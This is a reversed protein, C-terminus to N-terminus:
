KRLAAEIDRASPFVAINGIGAVAVTSQQLLAKGVNAVDAESVANIREVIEAASLAKDAHLVQRAIDETANTRNELTFLVQARLTTKARKV